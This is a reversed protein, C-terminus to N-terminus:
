AYVASPLAKCLSFFKAESEFNSYFRDLLDREADAENTFHECVGLISRKGLSRAAEFYSKNYLNKPQEIPYHHLFHRKKTM